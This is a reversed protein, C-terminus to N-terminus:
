SGTLIGNGDDPAGGALVFLSMLAVLIALRMWYYDVQGLVRQGNTKLGELYQM